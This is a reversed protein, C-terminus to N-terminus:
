CKGNNWNQNSSCKRSNFKSKDKCSIYKTLVESEDTGTVM